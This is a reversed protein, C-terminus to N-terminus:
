VILIPNYQDWDHDGKSLFWCATERVIDECSLRNKTYFLPILTGNQKFGYKRIIEKFNQITTAYEVIPVKNQKFHNIAYLLLDTFTESDDKATYIEIIHGTMLEPPESIRLVMYGEIEGKRKAIFSHYKVSPQDTFKWNLYSCDRKVIIDYNNQTKEWLEEIEDGFREVESIETSGCDRDKIFFHSYFSIIINFFFILIYQLKFPCIIKLLLEAIKSNHEKKLRLLDYIYKPTLCLRRKFLKVSEVEISGLRKKINRNAESMSLSMFIEHNEANMRQLKSGVGKGRYEPLVITDVSWAAPYITNKIKLLIRMACTQGIIVNNDKAIWIPLKDENWYPNNCFEWIWREPIKYIARNGYAKKIFEWIEERDKMDAQKIEIQMNSM